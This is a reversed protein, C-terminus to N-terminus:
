KREAVLSVIASAPISVSIQDGPTCNIRAPAIVRGALVSRTLSPGNIAHPAEAALVQCDVNGVAFGDVSIRTNMARDVSRNVLMATLRRGNPSISAQASIEPVQDQAKILGLTNSAFSPGEVRAPVLRSEFRSNFMAFVHYSPTRVLERNTDTLLSGYFEHIPNTYTAMMLRPEGIMLNLMSAVYVAAAMTRSQDAYEATVDRKGSYGFLPGWETIAIPLGKTNPHKDLLAAVEDFNKKTQEPAAYMVRYSNLRANADTFRVGDNIVVPAYANHIAMFDADGKFERLMRETWDGRGGPAIPFAGDDIHGILGVKVGPTAALIANRYKAFDRGYQEGAKAIRKGNPQEKNPDALYIENGVEWYKAPVGADKFYKAWAGADDASGTGYNATVLMDARTAKILDVFEPSGFPQSESRGTFINSANRRRNRPEIGARWDYYDAHIGGPFRYLPIGVGRLADVVEHRMNGSSDMLGNGADSWELHMGFVLRNVNAGPRGADIRVQASDGSSAVSARNNSSTNGSRPPFLPPLTLPPLSSARQGDATITVDDIYARAGSQGMVQIGLSLFSANKPVTYTKSREVYKGSKLETYFDNEMGEPTYLTMNVAGGDTRVKASFRVRRGRFAAPDLVQYVMLSNNGSSGRSSASMMLARAGSAVPERVVEARGFEEGRLAWGPVGGGSQEFDGNVLASTPPPTAQGAQVPGCGAAALAALMALMVLKM